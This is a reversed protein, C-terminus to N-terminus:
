ARLKSIRDVRSADLTVFGVQGDLTMDHVLGVPIGSAVRRLNEGEVTTIRVQNPDQDRTVRAAIDYACFALLLDQSGMQNMVASWSGDHQKHEVLCWFSDKGLASILAKDVEASSHAAQLAARTSNQKISIDWLAAMKAWNDAIICGNVSLQTVRNTPDSRAVAKPDSTQQMMHYIESGTMTQAYVNKGNEKAVAEFAEPSTFLGVIQSGSWPFTLLMIGTGADVFPVLFSTGALIRFSVARHFPSPLGEQICEVINVIDQESM